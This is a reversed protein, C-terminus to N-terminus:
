KERRRVLDRGNSELPRPWHGAQRSAPHLPRAVAQVVVQLPVKRGDKLLMNDFTIAVLSHPFTTSRAKDETVHGIIKTNRPVVIQGHALLDTATKAEIKDDAKRKKADLSKSLEVSLISGPALTDASAAFSQARSAATQGASNAPPPETSIQALSMTAFAFIVSTSFFGKKLM